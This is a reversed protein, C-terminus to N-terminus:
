RTDPQVYFTRVRHEVKAGCQWCYNSSVDAGCGCNSCIGLSNDFGPLGYPTISCTREIRMNWAAIAKTSTVKYGGTAGCAYCFVHWKLGQATEVDEVCARSEGCHPCPKIDSM